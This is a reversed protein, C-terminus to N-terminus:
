KCAHCDVAVNDMYFFKKGACRECLGKLLPKIIVADEPRSKVGLTQSEGFTILEGVDNYGYFGASTVKRGSFAAFYHIQHLDLIHGESGDYIIYKGKEEM